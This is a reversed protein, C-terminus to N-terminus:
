KAGVLVPEAKASGLHTKLINGADLTGAIEGALTARNREPQEREVGANYRM